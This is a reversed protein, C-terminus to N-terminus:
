RVSLNSAVACAAHYLPKVEGSIIQVNVGLNELFVRWDSIHESDGEICFFAGALNGESNETDSFPFLPHISYGFAKKLRISPFAENATMAGSCHCIHRGEINFDCLENYVTNIAADPVTLFVADSENLLEQPSGFFRSGTFKAANRASSEHLSYYGTVCCGSDAFFKGLSFGAKGAGIFGINM